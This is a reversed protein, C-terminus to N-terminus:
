RRARRHKGVSAAGISSFWLSLVKTGKLGPSWERYHKDFLLHVCPTDLAVRLLM